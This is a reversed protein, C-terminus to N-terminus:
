NLLKKLTEELADGRLYKAIIKGNPDILFNM